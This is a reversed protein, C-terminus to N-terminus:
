KYGLVMVVAEQARKLVEARKRSSGSLSKLKGDLEHIPKLFERLTSIKIAYNVNEPMAGSQAFVAADNLRAEMVGDVSGYRSLLPGGSNGPQVPVSVQFTMPDDRIGALSSIKGDTYKAEFGQVDPNPFGITFVDAGLEPGKTAALPLATFSTGEVKLLALDMQRDTKVVKADFFKDKTKIRVKRVGRVVHDNTILYGDDTIFFATGFDYLKDAQPLKVLQSSRSGGSSSSGLAAYPAGDKSIADPVEDRAAVRGADYTRVTRQYSRRDTIHVKLTYNNGTFMGAFNFRDQDSYYRAEPFNIVHILVMELSDPTTDLVAEDDSIKLVMRVNRCAAWGPQARRLDYVVGNVVRFQGTALAREFSKQKAEQAKERAGEVTDQVTSSTIGWSELFSRPLQAPDAVTPASGSYIIIKGDGRVFVSTIDSIDQDGFHVTTIKEDAFASNFSLLILGLLLSVFTCRIRFLHNAAIM